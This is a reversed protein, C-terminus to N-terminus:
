APRTHQVRPDILHSGRRNERLREPSGSWAQTALEDFGDLLIFLYNAHWAQVLQHPSPFGIQGAHDCAEPRTM